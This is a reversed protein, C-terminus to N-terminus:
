KASLFYEWNSEEIKCVCCRKAMKSRPRTQVTQLYLLATKLSDIPKSNFCWTQHMRLIHTNTKKNSLGIRLRAVCLAGAIGQWTVAATRRTRLSCKNGEGLSVAALPLPDGSSQKLPHLVSSVWALSGPEPSPNPHLLLDAEMGTGRTLRSQGGGDWNKGRRVERDWNPQHHQLQM